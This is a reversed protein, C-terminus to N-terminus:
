DIGTILDHLYYVGMQPRNNVYHSVPFWPIIFYCVSLISSLYTVFLSMLIEMYPVLDGILNVM